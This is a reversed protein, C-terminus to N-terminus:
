ERPVFVTDIFAESNGLSNRAVVSINYTLGTILTLDTINGIFQLDESGSFMMVTGNITIQPIVACTVHGGHSPCM